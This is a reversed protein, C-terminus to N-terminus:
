NETITVIVTGAKGAGDSLDALSYLTYGTQSYTGTQEVATLYYIGTRFTYGASRTPLAIYGTRGGTATLTFTRMVGSTFNLADTMAANNAPESTLQAVYYHPVASILRLPTIVQQKYTTGNYTASVTAFAHITQATNAETASVTFTFSTGSISAKTVSISNGDGDTVRITDTGGTGAADSGTGAYTFPSTVAITGTVDFATNAIERPGAPNLSISAHETPLGGGGPMSAWTLGGTNGSQKQLFQGNTGANSINMMSEDVQLSNLNGSSTRGLVHSASIFLDTPNASASTANVKVTNAGVNALNGNSIADDAVMGARITGPLITRGDGARQRGHLIVEYRQNDASAPTGSSTILGTFIDSGYEDDSGSDSYTSPINMAVLNNTLFTSSFEDISYVGYAGTRVGASTLARLELVSGIGFFQALGAISRSPTSADSTSLVVSRVNAWSSASTSDLTSGTLTQEAGGIFLEGANNALLDARGVGQDLRYDTSLALVSAADIFAASLGLGETYVDLGFNDRAVSDALHVNTIADNAIKDGTVAGDAIIDTTVDDNQIRDVWEFSVDGADASHKVPVQGVTAADTANLQPVTISNDVVDAGTIIDSTSPKLLLTISGSGITGNSAHRRSTSAFALTDIEGSSSVNASTTASYSGTSSIMVVRSGNIMRALVSKGKSDVGRVLISRVDAWNSTSTLTGGGSNLMRIQGDSAPNASTVLTYTGITVLTNTDGILAEIESRSNVGGSSGPINITKTTGTGSATVGDGTFNIITGRASGLGSGEDQVIVGAAPITPKNQIFADSSASTENWNAQVNVEAGTAIGDLKTKDEDTMAGWASTTAAPVTANTGTSSLIRLGTGTASSSLNTAGGGGGAPLDSVPIRGQIIDGDHIFDVGVYSADTTYDNLNIESGLSSGNVHIHADEGPDGPDGKPGTPGVNGTPGPPGTNGTNGMPGRLGTDGPNGQLGQPGRPGDNGMPGTSGPTGQPGPNGIPGQQGTAGTFGRPGTDGTDGKEGTDGTNGTPGAPGAPGTSGGQFPTAWVTVVTDSSAPNFPAETVYLTDTGTPISTSWNGADSGSLVGTAATWTLDNVATANPATSFRGYLRVEYRGQAGQPGINGQAGTNGDNGHLGQPGQEGPPGTPGIPGEPGTMGPVGQSGPDGTDGKAGPAGDMGAAGPNGQPGIPGTPGAPGTPGQPGDNGTTGMPGPEGQPGAPGTEVTDVDNLTTSGDSYGVTLRIESENTPDTGLSVSSVYRTTPLGGSAGGDSSVSSSAQASGEQFSGGPTSGKTQGAKTNYAM